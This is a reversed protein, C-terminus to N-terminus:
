TASPRDALRNREDLSVDGHGSNRPSRARGSRYRWRERCACCAPAGVGSRRNHAGPSRRDSNRRRRRHLFAPRRGAADDRDLGLDVAHGPIEDDVRARAEDRHGPVERRAGLQASQRLATPLACVALPKMSVESVTARVSEGRRPAHRRRARWSRRRISPGSADVAQESHREERAEVDHQGILSSFIEALCALLSARSGRNVREGRSAVDSRPRSPRGGSGPQLRHADNGQDKESNEEGGAARPGFGRRRLRGLVLGAAEGHARGLAAQQPEVLLAARDGEARHVAPEGDAADGGLLAGRQLRSISRRARSFASNRALSGPPTPASAAGRLPRGPSSSSSRASEKVSLNRRRM